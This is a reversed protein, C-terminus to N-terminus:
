DNPKLLLALKLNVRSDSYGFKNLIFKDHLESTVQYDSSIMLVVEVDLLHDSSVVMITLVKWDTLRGSSVTQSNTDYLVSIAPILTFDVSAKLLCYYHMCVGLHAHRDSSVTM